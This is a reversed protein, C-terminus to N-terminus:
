PVNTQDSPADPTRASTNEPEETREEKKQKKEETRLRKKEEALLRKKEEEEPDRNFLNMAEDAGHTLFVLAADAARRVEAAVAKEEEATLRALVFDALDWQLPKMGCGCRIRPFANSGLCLILNELGNHGGASGKKRVRLRGLALNVDDCVVLIDEPPIRHYAALPSVCEGSLNMYTLPKVLLVKEGGLLGMGTLGRSRNVNVRIGAQEALVDVTQWGINHRTHEYKAGPNGLGVIMKM